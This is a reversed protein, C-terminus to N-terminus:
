FSLLPTFSTYDWSVLPFSPLPVKTPSCHSAGETAPSCPSSRDRVFCLPSLHPPPVCPDVGDSIGRPGWLARSQRTCPLPDPLVTDPPPIPPFRVLRGAKDKMFVPSWAGVRWPLPSPTPSSYLWTHVDMTETIRCSQLRTGAPGANSSTWGTVGRKRAANSGKTWKYRSKM